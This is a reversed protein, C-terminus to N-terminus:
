SKMISRRTNSSSVAVMEDMTIVICSIASTISSTEFSFLQQLAVAMIIIMSMIEIMLWAAAVQYLSM